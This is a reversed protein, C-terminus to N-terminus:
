RLVIHRSCSSNLLRKLEAVKKAGGFVFDVIFENWLASSQLVKAIIDCPDISHVAEAPNTTERSSWWTLLREGWLRRWGNSYEMHLTKYLHQSTLTCDFDWIMVDQASLQGLNVSSEALIKQTHTHTRAHMHTDHMTTNLSFCISM